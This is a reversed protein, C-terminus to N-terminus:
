DCLQQVKWLFYMDEERAVDEAEGKWCLINKASSAMVEMLGLAKAAEVFDNPVIGSYVGFSIAGAWGATKTISSRLYTKKAKRVKSEIASIKPQIVDSYLQKADNEDFAEKQKRYEDIASNLSKRYQVFADEEERLKLLNVTDANEIFPVFSTLYKKAIQNRKQIEPDVGLSNLIDIHLERETLFSTALSESLALEFIINQFVDAVMYNLYPTKKKITTSVTITEGNNIKKLLMPKQKLANPMKESVFWTRGHPVYNEPGELCVSYRSGSKSIQVTVEGMYLNQLNRKERELIREAKNFGPSKKGLLHHACFDPPSIPILIGKEVLPRMQNLLQIDDTFRQLYEGPTDFTTIREETLDNFFNHIYVKDAYLLAYQSLETLRDKRCEYNSCPWIGGGLSMSASQAFVTKEQDFHEFSTIESFSKAIDILQGIPARAIKACDVKEDNVFGDIQLGEFFTEYM